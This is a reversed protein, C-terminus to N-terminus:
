KKNFLRPIWVSLLTRVFIFACQIALSQQKKKTPFYNRNKFIGSDSFAKYDKLPFLPRRKSSEKCDPHRTGMNTNFLNDMEQRFKHNVAKQGKKNYKQLTEFMIQQEDPYKKWRDWLINLNENNQDLTVLRKKVLVQFVSRQFKNRLAEYDEPTYKLVKEFLMRNYSIPERVVNNFFSDFDTNEGSIFGKKVLEDYLERRNKKRLCEFNNPFFKLYAELNRRLQSDKPIVTKFANLDFEFPRNTKLNVTHLNTHPDWSRSEIDCQTWWKYFPGNFFRKEMSRTREFHFFRIKFLYSTDRDSHTGPGGSQKTIPNLFDDPLEHQDFWCVNLDELEQVQKSVERIRREVDKITCFGTGSLFGDGNKICEEHGRILEALEFKLYKLFEQEKLIADQTKVSLFCWELRKYNTYFFRRIKNGIPDKAYFVPGESDYVTYSKHNWPEHKKYGTKPDADTRRFLEERLTSIFMGPKFLFELLKYGFYLIFDFKTSAIYCSLSNLLSAIPEYSWIPLNYFWKRKNYYNWLVLIFSIISCVGVAHENIWKM